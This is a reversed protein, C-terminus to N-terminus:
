IHHLHLQRSSVPPKGYLDHQNSVCKARLKNAVNLNSSHVAPKRDTKFGTIDDIWRKPRYNQKRRYRGKFGHLISFAMKRNAPLGVQRLLVRHQM